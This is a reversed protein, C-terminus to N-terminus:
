PRGEDCRRTEGNRVTTPGVTPFLHRQSDGLPGLQRRKGAACRHYRLRPGSRLAAAKATPSWTVTFVLMDVDHEAGRM